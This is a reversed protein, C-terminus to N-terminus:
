TGCPNLLWVGRGCGETGSSYFCCSSVGPGCPAGAPPRTSPCGDNPGGLCVWTTAADPGAPQQLPPVGCYCEFGHEYICMLGSDCPEGDPVSSRQAPCGAPNPGPEPSCFSGDPGTGNDLSWVGLDCTWLQDCAPDWWASGYECQLGQQSSSCSAYKAPPSSLCGGDSQEPAADTAADLQAAGAPPPTSCAQTAVITLICLLHDMPTLIRDFIATQM